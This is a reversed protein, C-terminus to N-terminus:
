DAPNSWSYSPKKKNNNNKECVNGREAKHPYEKSPITALGFCTAKGTVDEGMQPPFFPDRQRLLSLERGKLEFRSSRNHHDSSSADLPAAFQLPDVFPPFLRHMHLSSLHIADAEVCPNGGDQKLERTFSQVLM